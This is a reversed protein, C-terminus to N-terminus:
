KAEKTCVVQGDFKLSIKSYTNWGARPMGNLYFSWLNAFKSDLRDVPGLEILHDGLKPVMLVNGGRDIHIQDILGKYRRHSDLWNALAVLSVLQANLSDTRLPEAFAGTAVLVDCDGIPSAPMLFGDADFYLESSQYFLRAIPRRQTARVIVKGSVSVSASVDRLYPVHSAAEAVARNNVESVKMSLLAPLASLVSDVVMQRDVLAPTQGYRISVEIGSVQSRSRAVNAVVTLVSVAIAGLLVLLVTHYRKM